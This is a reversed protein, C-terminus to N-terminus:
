ERIRRRLQKDNRTVYIQRTAENLDNLHRKMYELLRGYNHRHLNFGERMLEREEIDVRIGGRAAMIKFVEGICHRYIYM